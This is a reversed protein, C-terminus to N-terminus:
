KCISCNPFEKDEDIVAVLNFDLVEIIHGGIQFSNEDM